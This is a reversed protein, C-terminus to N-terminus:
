VTAPKEVNTSASMAYLKFSHSEHLGKSLEDQINNESILFLIWDM